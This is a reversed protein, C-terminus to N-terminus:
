EYRLAVMPDVKTARRAPLYSALLAVAISVVAVITFTAPDTASVGFLLSSMLRTLAFAAALGIAAGIVALMMGQGVVLKLVDKRQAGLAIRVGIEHTRRAVLFSMVSFIGVAALLLATASFVALLTMNFRQQAVSDAVLSEIPQIHFLPVEKDIELVAARLPSALNAPEATKIRVVLSMSNVPVQEYPVYYTPDPEKDLYRQHVDGVVGVILGHIGNLGVDLYRNIPDEDPFFRRALTGSILLVKPATATDRETFARGSIVPIGLARFYDPTVIAAQAIPRAGPGPDRRGAVTFSTSISNEGFPLGLVAAAAEVGPLQAAREVAQKYFGSLQEDKPYKVSSLSVSATLVGESNFGPSTSRLQVFSKILLGAGVLLVLSLAVESVILLSRVRHSGRGETSGRASEKLAENLDIRSAQLAPALGFVISTLLSAATAFGLVVLDLGSEKFRPVDPPVLASILDGGWLAILLGLGGGLISLILSETLLQRIIRGRGAGLAFRIATERWRGAGRALQLNAVNACAVLLVFGVAGLLLLLSRRLNGVMDEQASVLSLGSGTDEEPYQQELQAAITRFEAEAGEITVGEKLRALVKLYNAGRQVEMEGKPDLPVFYEPDENVFPFQFQPPLVGVITKSKGNLTIQRGIVQPDSGLRHQWLAHSIIAVTAGSEQEDDSTFTRGLLTKTGLVHFLGASVDLGSIREPMGGVMLTRDTDNYAALSECTSTLARLDAFNPYSHSHGTAGTKSNTRLVRVLREAHDFPLPRLLVANVVSFIATNAGIGLALTLIAVAAFGPNKVLMRAGYRLDRVAHNV